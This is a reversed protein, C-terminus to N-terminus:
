GAETALVAAGETSIRVLGFVFFGLSSLALLIWVLTFSDPPRYKEASGTLFARFFRVFYVAVACTLGYGFLPLNKLIVEALRKDTEVIHGLFALVAVAATGNAAFLGKVGETLIDARSTFAKNNDSTPNAPNKTESAASEERAPVSHLVFLQWASLIMAAFFFLLWILADM